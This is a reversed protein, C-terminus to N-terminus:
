VGRRNHDVGGDYVRGIILAPRVKIRNGRDVPGLRLANGVTCHKCLLNWFFIQTYHSYNHSITIVYMDILEIGNVPRGYCIIHM